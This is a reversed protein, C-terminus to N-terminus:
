RGAGARRRLGAIKRALRLAAILSRPDAKGTGAIDLATGHDPSTRVFPLGLTVNVGEHFNVTKLPILAQDHYMCLAADYRLRAARHFLTDAPHPGTVHLGEATLAAVAPAIMDIEERGMSGAEGAHPNLGAIALRPAQIGFDESLARHVVRATDEILATSLAPPVERLAKHVTVPVVRLGPVALMMVARSGPGAVSAFYETHGPHEFGAAYLTAKQIPNTVVAAASGDRCLAVAREISRLVAAANATEPRGPVAEVTEELPLVPVGEAFAQEVEGLHQVTCLPVDVGLARAREQLLAPAGILVFPPVRAEARRLWALLSIDPGIGSPEGM